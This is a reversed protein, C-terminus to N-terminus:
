IFYPLFREAIEDWESATFGREPDRTFTYVVKQYPQLRLITAWGCGIRKNVTNIYLHYKARSRPTPPDIRRGIAERILPKITEIKLGM